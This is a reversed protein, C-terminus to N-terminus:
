APQRAGFLATGVRVMTSGELIAQTYDASMGMSLHRMTVGPIAGADEFLRRMRAFHGRTREPPEGFPPICMLGQVQLGPMQAVQALFEGLRDPAVGGKQEEGGINVQVLVDQPVGPERRSIAEALGLRDLSQILKVKGKIYKVKNTQLQGILNVDIKRQNFFDLKGLLEQVRNEGVCTVGAELAEVIREETVFKTVAVFTIDDSTRGSKLAAAQINDCIRRYAGSIDM